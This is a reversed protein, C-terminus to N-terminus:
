NMGELERDIVMDDIASFENRLERYYLLMSMRKDEDGKLYEALIQVSKM